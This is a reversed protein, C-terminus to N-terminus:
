GAVKAPNKAPNPRVLGCMVCQNGGRFRHGDWVLDCHWREGRSTVELYTGEKWILCGPAAKGYGVFEAGIQVRNLEPVPVYGLIKFRVEEDDCIAIFHTPVRKRWPPWDDHYEFRVIKYLRQKM